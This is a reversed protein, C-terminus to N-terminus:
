LTLGFGYGVHVITDSIRRKAVLTGNLKQQYYNAALKNKEWTWVICKKANGFKFHQKFGNQALNHLLKSGIGMRQYTPLIFFSILEVDYKDICKKNNEGEDNEVDNDCKVDDSAISINNQWKKTISLKSLIKGDKSMRIGGRIFGVVFNTYINEAIYFLQSENKIRELWKKCWADHFQIYPGDDEDRTIMGMKEMVNQVSEADKYTPLAARIRYNDKDRIRDISLLETDLHAIIDDIFNLPYTTM